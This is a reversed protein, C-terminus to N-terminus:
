DAIVRMFIKLPSDQKSIVKQYLVFLNDVVPDPKYDSHLINESGNRGQKGRQTGRLILPFGM